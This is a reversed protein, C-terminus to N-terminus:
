GLRSNQELLKEPLPNRAILAVFVFITLFGFYALFFGLIFDRGKLSLGMALIAANGFLSLYVLGIVRVASKLPNLRFLYIKTELVAYQFLYSFVFGLWYKNLFFYNGALSIGSVLMLLFNKKCSLPPPLNNGRHCCYMVNM